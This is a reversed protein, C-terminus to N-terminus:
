KDDPFANREELLSLNRYFRGDSIIVGGYEMEEEVRAKDLARGPARDVDHRLNLCRKPSSTLYESVTTSTYVSDAVVCLLSKYRQLSFDQPM